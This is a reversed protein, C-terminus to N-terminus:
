GLARAFGERWSTYKPQWGLERKIRANSAGRMETMGVVATRGALPRAIWAPISRPAPASLERAYVPLWESVPAPDDDVVNYLKPGAQALAAVIALAADEAHIFSFIGGGGGVIPIRRRRVDREWSGERAFASRPGYLHGFRLATGGAEAVQSELSHLPETVFPRGGTDLPADEDKIPSGEPAYAFAISEAVIREAGAGRAAAILNRTGEHRLRGTSQLEREMHRADMDPPIDTLAHVVGDPRAEALTRKLGDQDYADCVATEFGETALRSAKQPSRTMAIPVHGASRLAGLLPAGIVGTAGAVFVRV